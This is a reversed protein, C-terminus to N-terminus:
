SELAWGKANWELISGDYVTVDYGLYRAVFYAVSSMMGSTCYVVVDNRVLAGTGAFAARLEPVPRLLPLAPSVVLSAWPLSAAGPIHGGNYNAAPRADVLRVGPDGLMGQVQDGTVVLGTRVPTVMRGPKVQPMETSLEYAAGWAARGGDLLSVRPHGLYELIFFGRAAGLADDGTVIVHNGTSVGAAELVSRLVAPANLMIPVGNQTSQVSALTVLRAGPVHGANYGAASGFHLVVIGPRDLNHHLWEATVLLNQRTAVPVHVLSPAGAATQLTSDAPATPMAECAGLVLVAAVLGFLKGAQM